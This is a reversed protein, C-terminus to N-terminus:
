AGGKRRRPACSSEFRRAAAVLLQHNPRLYVQTSSAGVHGLYTALLALLRSPDRRRRLWGIVARVAFTHRLDHIRPRRGEQDQVNATAVAERFAHHVSDYSLRRGRGSLFLPTGPAPARDRKRRQALFSALAEIASPRLPVLRSKQFKGARIMLVGESLDVDRVELTLAESIRLGTVLLLSFLTAYTESATAGRMFSRDRMTTLLREIEDEALVYPRRGPQSPFTPRLPLPAVPRGHRRAHELAPWIVSCVNEKGRAVLHEKGELYARLHRPEVRRVGGATLFDDFQRLIRAQTAYDAGCAQKLAVFDVFSSRLASRFVFPCSM